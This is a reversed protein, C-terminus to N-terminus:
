MLTVEPSPWAAGTVIMMKGTIKSSVTAIRRATVYGSADLVSAPGGEAASRAKATEVEVPRGGMLLVLAVVVAIGAGLFIPWRRRKRAAPGQRNIRLEKLLEAPSNM